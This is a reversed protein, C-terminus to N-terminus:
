QDYNSLWVYQRNASLQVRESALRETIVDKHLHFVSCNSYRQQLDM